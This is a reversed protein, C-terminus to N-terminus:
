AFETLGVPGPDIVLIEALGESAAGPPTVQAALVESRSALIADSRHLADIDVGVVGEVAHIVAMVDGLTIRNGLDQADFSYRARLAAEVATLVVARDYDPHTRVRAQLRFTVTGGSAVRVPTTPDGSARLAAVLNERTASGTPLTEGGPALVHLLIGREGGIASWTARARSVGAFARAFDEYDRLSVVRDLTMVTLPANRRADDRSEPDAGGTAAAPNVVDKVGLPRTMLLSIRGAAVNAASGIGKRYAARINETGTPARAGEVGNGFLVTTKGDDDTSTTFVRADPGSDVLTPVEKWLVDNVRLELTSRAGSPTAASVWTLPNQRLPLSLFPRTADGSGSVEAVSEGHTASAVNASLRVRKDALMDDRVYQAELPAALVIVTRGDDLFADAVRRVEGTALGPADSRPGSFAVLRGAALEIHAADLAITDGGVPSSVPVGVATLPESQILVTAARLTFLQLDTTSDLTLRTVKASLGFGTRAVERVDVVGYTRTASASQLVAFGGPAIGQYVADLYLYKGSGAEQLATTAEWSAAFVPSELFRSIVSGQNDFVSVPSAFRLTTPLSRYTPANSGFLAARQRMVYLAGGTAAPRARAAADLRQCVADLSVNASRAASVLEAQRWKRGLLQSPNSFDVGVVSSEVALSSLEALTAGAGPAAGIDLRVSQGDAAAVARRVRRVDAAGSDLRVLMADGPQVAVNSAIWYSDATTTLAQPVRLRPLPANWAVRAVLTEVSEYTQPLEGPGPISQARTRAPVTVASPAGPTGEVTFALWTGSAVGPRLRYGILRALELVSRRETATRLYAEWAARDAYLSLVDGVAAWADVLAITFDGDDRTTLSELGPVGKASLRALMAARLEAHGPRRAVLGTSNGSM